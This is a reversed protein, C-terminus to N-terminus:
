PNKFTEQMLMLGAFEAKVRPFLFFDVPALDPSNPAHPATKVGKAALIDV